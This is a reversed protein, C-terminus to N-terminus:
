GARLIFLVHASRNFVNEPFGLIKVEELRFGNNKFLNTWENISKFGCPFAMEPVGGSLSNSLFDIIIIADKQDEKSLTIFESFLPQSNKKTDVQSTYNENSEIEEQPLIVDEEVILRGQKSMANRINKLFISRSEDTNGVHHLVALCTMVDYKKSSKTGPKSFDLMEFNIEDKISETRWDLVDIGAYEKLFGHEKKLFAVLDGGGCGIDCYSEGKLYPELQRLRKFLKRKHKYNEYAEDFERFWISDQPTNKRSLQYFLPFLEEPQAKIFEIREFVENSLKVCKQLVHKPDISDPNPHHEIIAEAYHSNMMRRVLNKAKENRFSNLFTQAETLRLTQRNLYDNKM